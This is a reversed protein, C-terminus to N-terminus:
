ACETRNQLIIGQIEKGSQLKETLTAMAAVLREIIRHEHESEETTSIRKM